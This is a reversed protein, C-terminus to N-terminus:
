SLPGVWHMSFHPGRSGDTGEVALSGGSTQEVEAVVYEGARLAVLGSVSLSTPAPSPVANSLQVAPPSNDNEKVEVKLQRFGNSNAAFSVNASVQYIGDVPATLRPGSGTHMEATDFEEADFDLPVVTNTNFSQPEDNTVSAAITRTPGPPGPPGVPGPNGAPLSGAKFDRAELSGNKVKPSTVSNKRLQKAGVSNRPLHTAAYSAGGLAVFLAVGALM